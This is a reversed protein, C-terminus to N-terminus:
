QFIACKFSKLNESEVKKKNIAVMSHNFYKLSFMEAEDVQKSVNNIVLGMM